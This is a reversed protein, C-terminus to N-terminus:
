FLLRPLLSWLSSDKTIFRSYFVSHPILTPPRVPSPLLALPFSTAQQGLGEAGREEEYDRFPFGVPPGLALPVCAGRRPRRGM